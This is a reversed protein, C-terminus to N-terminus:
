QVQHLAEQLHQGQHPEQLHCYYRTHSFFFVLQHYLYWTGQHGGPLILLLTCSHYSSFVLVLLLDVQSLIRRTPSDAQLLSCYSSYNDGLMCCCCCHTCCHNYCHTCYHTCHHLTWCHYIHTHSCVLM